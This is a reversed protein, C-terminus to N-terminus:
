FPVVWRRLIGYAARMPDRSVRMPSAVAFQGVQPTVPGSERDLLEAATQLIAEDRLIPPVVKTGIFRDVMVEALAWCREAADSNTHNGGAYKILDEPGM